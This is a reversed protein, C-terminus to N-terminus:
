TVSEKVMLIDAFEGYKQEREISVVKFGEEARENIFASITDDLEMSTYQGDVVERKITKFLYIPYEQVDDEFVQQQDVDHRLIVEIENDINLSTASSVGRILAKGAYDPHPNEMVVYMNEGRKFIDGPKLDSLQYITKTYM